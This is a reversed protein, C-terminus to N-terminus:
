WSSAKTSLTLPRTGLSQIEPSSEILFMSHISLIYRFAHKKNWKRHRKVLRLSLSSQSRTLTCRVEIGGHLLLQLLEFQISGHVYQPSHYSVSEREGCCRQGAGSKTRGRADLELAESHHAFTWSESEGYLSLDNTVYVLHILNTKDLPFLKIIFLRRRQLVALAVLVRM